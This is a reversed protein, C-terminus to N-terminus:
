KKLGKLTGSVKEVSINERQVQEVTSVLENKVPLYFNLNPIEEVLYATSSDSGQNLIEEAAILQEYTIEGLHYAQWLEDSSSFSSLSFDVAYISASLLFCILSILFIIKLISDRMTVM